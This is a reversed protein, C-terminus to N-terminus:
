VGLRLVEMHQPYPELFSGGGWFLVFRQGPEGLLSLAFGLLSTSSFPSIEISLVFVFFWSFVM